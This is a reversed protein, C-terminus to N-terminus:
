IYNVFNIQIQKQQIKSKTNDLINKKIKMLIYIYIYIYIYTYCM